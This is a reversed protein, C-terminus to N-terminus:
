GADDGSLKARRSMGGALVGGLIGMPLYAGLLDAAIFGIPGGCYAIMTIGGALFCCGIGIAFLMRHSVAIKAAVFAGVLTGIAHALLPFLFNMFTFSKMAEAIGEMNSLDAGEPLPVVVMGLQVIGMNVGGGILLGLFVAIVNRLVNM